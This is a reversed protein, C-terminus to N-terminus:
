PESTENPDRVNITVSIEIIDGENATIEENLIVKLYM